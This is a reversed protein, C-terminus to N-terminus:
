PNIVEEQSNVSQTPIGKGGHITLGGSGQITRRIFAKCSIFFELIANRFCVLCIGALFLCGGVVIGVIAGTPFKTSSNYQIISSSTEVSCQNDCCTRNGYHSAQLNDGLCLGEIMTPNAMGVNDDRSNAAYSDRLNASCNLSPGPLQVIQDATKVTVNPLVQICAVGLLVDGDFVPYSVGVLDVGIDTFPASSHIWIPAANNTHRIRAVYSFFSQLASLPDGVIDNSRPIIENYALVNYSANLACAVSQLSPDTSNDSQDKWQYIFPRVSLRTLAQAISSDSPLSISTGDALHGRTFIFLVKLNQSTSTDFGSDNSLLLNELAATLNAQPTSRAINDSMHKMAAKLAASANTFAAVNSPDPMNVVKVHDTQILGTHDFKYVSVTDDENVTDLFECLIKTTADFFSDTGPNSIFEGMLGGGDLLIVVQKSVGTIARYWPRKRPDFSEKCKTPSLELGPYIRFVGNAAGFMSWVLKDFPKTSTNAYIKPFIQDLDKQSCITLQQDPSIKTRVLKDLGGPLRVYSQDSLLAWSCNKVNGDLRTCHQDSLFTSNAPLQVCLSKDVLQKTQCSFVSCSTNCNSREWLGQSRRYNSLVSEAVSKVSDEVVNVFQEDANSKVELLSRWSAVAEHAHGDGHNGILVAWFVLTLALVRSSCMRKSAGSIQPQRSAM